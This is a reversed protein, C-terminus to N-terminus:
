IKALPRDTQRDTQGDDPIKSQGAQGGTGFPTSPIDMMNTSLFVRWGDIVGGDLVTAIMMQQRTPSASSIINCGCADVRMSPLGDPLITDM